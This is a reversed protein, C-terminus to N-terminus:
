QAVCPSQESNQTYTHHCTSTTADSAPSPPRWIPCLLRKLRRRRRPVEPATENAETEAEPDDVEPEEQNGQNPQDDGAQIKVM